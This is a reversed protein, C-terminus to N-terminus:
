TWPSADEVMGARVPNFKVYRCVTLLYVERDVLIAKFRGQLLHVVVGHRRNKSQTHLGNLHHMLRSLNAARAHLVM